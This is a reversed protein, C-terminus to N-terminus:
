QRQQNRHHTRRDHDQRERNPGREPDFFHLRCGRDWVPLCLSPGPGPARHPAIAHERSHRSPCYMGSRPRASERKAGSAIECFGAQLTARCHAQVATAVEGGDLQIVFFNGRSGGCGSRLQQPQSLYQGAWESIQPLPDSLVCCGASSNPSSQASHPVSGTARSGATLAGGMWTTVLRRYPQVRM